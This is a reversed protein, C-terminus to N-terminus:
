ATIVIAPPSAAAAVSHPPNCPTSASRRTSSRSPCFLAIPGAGARAKAPLVQRHREFLAGGAATTRACFRRMMALVGTAAREPAGVNQNRRYQETFPRQRGGEETSLVRLRALVQIPAAGAPRPADYFM